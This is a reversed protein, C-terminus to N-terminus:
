RTRGEELRGRLRESQSDFKRRGWRLYWATVVFTVVFQSLGLCLGVNVEGFLRTSMFGPAFAACLVYLFYWGLFLVTVPVVFEGFHRRLSQFERSAHVVEYASVRGSASRASQTVSM